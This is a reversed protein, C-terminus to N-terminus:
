KSKSPCDKARVFARGHIRKFEPLAEALLNKAIVATQGLSRRRELNVVGSEAEVMQEQRVMSQNFDLLRLSSCVAERSKTLARLPELNTLLRRQVDAVGRTRAAASRYGALNFPGCLLDGRRFQDLCVLKAEMSEESDENVKMCEDLRGENEALDNLCEAVSDHTDTTDSSTTTSTRDRRMAQWCRKGEAIGSTILTQSCRAGREEWCAKVRPSTLRWEYQVEPYGREVFFKRAADESCRSLEKQSLPSPSSEQESIFKNAEEGRKDKALQKAEGKEQDTPPLMASLSACATVSLATAAITVKLM